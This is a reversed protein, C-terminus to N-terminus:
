FAAVKPQYLKLIAWIQHDLLLSATSYVLYKNGFSPITISLALQLSFNIRSYVKVMVKSDWISIM